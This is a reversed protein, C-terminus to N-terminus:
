YVYFSCMFLVHVEILKVGPLRDGNVPIKVAFLVAYECDCYLSKIIYACTFQMRSNRFCGGIGLHDEAEEKSILRKHDWM